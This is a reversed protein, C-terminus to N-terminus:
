FQSNDIFKVKNKILYYYLLTMTNKKILFFELICKVKDIIELQNLAVKETSNFWDYSHSSTCFTENYKTFYLKYKTSRLSKMLDLVSNCHM